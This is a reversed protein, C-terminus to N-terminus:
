HDILVVVHAEVAEGRGTSDLGEKTKAKISVQASELDMLSALSEQIQTRYPSIKPKELIITCDLNVLFANQERVLRMTKKLLISSDIDKYLPDTSPFFTGIDGLTLAGLLADIVAHILTDGDSHGDEGVPSPIVVGGLILKRGPTLRHIDYGFGVRM